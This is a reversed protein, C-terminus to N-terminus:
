SIIDVRAGVPVTDAILQIVDNPVRICGNSAYQGMLQPNNTGHLALKPLGGGFINVSESFAALSLVWPGYAPGQDPIKEDIFTTLTPTPRSSNGTVADTTVIVEDGEWVTVTNTSVNVEVHFNNQSWEFYETKVWATSGNPRIPVHVKVYEDNPGGEAVVLALTGGFYTPNLLPYDITGGTLYEYQLTYERGNPADYVPVYTTSSKATLVAQEWEGLPEPTPTATPGPTPTTTATPAPTATPVATPTATPVAIVTVETEIEAEEDPGAVSTLSTDNGCGSAFLSIALLLVVFLQGLPRPRSTTAEFTRLSKPPIPSSPPMPM